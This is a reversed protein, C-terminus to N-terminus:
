RIPVSERPRGPGGDLGNRQHRPATWRVAKRVRQVVAGTEDTILRNTGLHDPHYQVQHVPTAAGSSPTELTLVRRGDLFVHRKAKGRALDVEYDADITRTNENTVGPKSAIRTTRAGDYDYRYTASASGASSGFSSYSTLRNAASFGFLEFENTGATFRQTANGDSDYVYQALFGTLPNYVQSVGHAGGGSAGYTLAFDGNQTLNGGADYAFSLLGYSHQGWSLAQSVRHSDDYWFTQSLLGGADSILLINGATDFGYSLDQITGTPTSTSTRTVRHDAPDITHSTVAGGSVYRLSQLAGSGHFTIEDVLPPNADVLSVGGSEAWTALDATTPTHLSLLLSGNYQRSVTTNNPYKTGLLRGLTDHYYNLQYNTGDIVTKRATLNGRLDRRMETKVGDVSAQVLEGPSVGAFISQDYLFLTDSPGPAAPSNSPAVDKFRIRGLGDYTYSISLSEGRAPVELALNGDLDYSYTTYPPGNIGAVSGPRGVRVRQGESNYSITLLNADPSQSVRPVDPGDILRIRGKPDRRLYTTQGPIERLSVVQGRPNKAIERGLNPSGYVIHTEVLENGPLGDHASVSYITEEEVRDATGSGSPMRLARKAPRLLGDFETVHSPAATSGCSVGAIGAPPVRTPESQCALEGRSGWSKGTVFFDKTPTAAAQKAELHVRGFGDFYERKEVSTSDHVVEFSALHQLEPSGLITDSFLFQARVATCDSSITSAGTKSDRKSSLRGLTDYDWCELYGRQNLKKAVAGFRGDFRYSTSLSVAGDRRTITEPFTSFASDWTTEVQPQSSVARSPPWYFRINGFEDRQWNEELNAVSQTVPDHRVVVRKSLLGRDYSRTENEVTVIGTTDSFQQYTVRPNRLLWNTTDVPDYVATTTLDDATDLLGDPGSVRERLMVGYRVDFERATRLAQYTSGDHTYTSELTPASFYANPIASGAENEPVLPEWTNEKSRLVQGGAITEEYEVLGRQALAQHFLTRTLTSAADTSEVMRFGRGERLVFDFRPEAYNLQESQAPSGSRGDSITRSSVVWLSRPSPVLSSEPIEDPTTKKESAQAASSFHTSPKYTFSTVGGFETEVRTLLGEPGPHRNVRWNYSPASCSSCPNSSYVGDFLGDGDIDVVDYETQIGFRYRYHNFPILDTTFTGDGLGLVLLPQLRPYLYPPGDNSDAVGLRDVIGDGNIDVSISYTVLDDSEQFTREVFDTIWRQYDVAHARCHTAGGQYGGEPDESLFAFHQATAPSAAGPDRIAGLGFGVDMCRMVITGIIPFTVNITRSSVRDPLGDGNIDIFDGKVDKYSTRSTKSLSEDLVGGTASIPSDFGCGTASCGHNLSVWIKSPDQSDIAVHDPRGDGNIDALRSKGRLFGTAVDGTKKTANIYRARAESQANSGSTTLLPPAWDQEPGFRNGLNRRFKWTATQTAKIRDPRGDGDMDVLDASTQIWVPESTVAVLRDPEGAPLVTPCSTQSESDCWGWKFSPAYSIGSPTIVGLNVVWEDNSGADPRTRIRDLIGDGDMDWLGGVNDSHDFVRRIAGGEPGGASVPQMPIDDLESPFDRGPESYGFRTARLNTASPFPTNDTGYRQISVLKSFPAEHPSQSTTKPAYTM